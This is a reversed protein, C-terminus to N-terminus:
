WRERGVPEGFNVEGHLNDPTIKELLENLHREKEIRRPLGSALIQIAISELAEESLEAVHELQQFLAESIELTLKRTAM